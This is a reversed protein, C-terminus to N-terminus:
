ADNNKNLLLPTYQNGNSVSRTKVRTSYDSSSGTREDYLCSEYPIYLALITPLFLIISVVILAIKLGALQSIGGIAPGSVISGCYTFAAVTSLATESLYGASSFMIPILTSLGLGCLGFGVTCLVIKYDDLLTISAAVALGVGSSALIGSIFVIRKRGYMKRAYDCTFRGVAMFIMFASYGFTLYMNSAHLVRDFYITTWSTISSEGFAALFGIISFVYITYYGDSRVTTSDSSNDVSSSKGAMANDSLIEKESNFDYVPYYSTGTLLFSAISVICYIYFPSLSACNALLLSSCQAGIAAAISYSGHFSGLIKKRSVKECLIAVNNMSVDMIGQFLGLSCMSLLFTTIDHSLGVFILCSSMVLASMCVTYRTGIAKILYSVVAAGVVMGLSFMLVSIGYLFDNIHLSDKVVPNVSAWCSNVIGELIFYYYGSIRCAFNPALDMM